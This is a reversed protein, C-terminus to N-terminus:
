VPVWFYRASATRSATPNANSTAPFILATMTTSPPTRLFFDLFIACFNYFNGLFLKKYFFFLTGSDISRNVFSTAAFQPCPLNGMLSWFQPDVDEIHCRTPFLALPYKFGLHTPQIHYATPTLLFISNTTSSTSFYPLIQITPVLTPGDWAYM